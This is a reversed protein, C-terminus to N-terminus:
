SEMHCMRSLSASSDLGKMDYGDKIFNNKTAFIIIVEIFNRLSCFVLIFLNSTVYRSTVHSVTEEMEERAGAM